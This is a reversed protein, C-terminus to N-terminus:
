GTWTETTSTPNLPAATFTIRCGPYPSTSSLVFTARGRVVTASSATTSAVDGGSIQVDGRMSGTCTGPDLTATVVRSNDATVRNGAIDQVDVLVVTCSPNTNSNFAVGSVTCAGTAAAPHISGGGSAVGLKTPPGVVRTTLTVIVDGIGADNRVDV